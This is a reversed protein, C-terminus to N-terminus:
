EDPTTPPPPVSKLEECDAPGPMSEGWPHLIVPSGQNIMQQVAARVLSTRHVRQAAAYEKIRQAMLGKFRITLESM